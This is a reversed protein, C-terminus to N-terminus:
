MIEKLDIQDTGFAAIVDKDNGGDGWSQTTNWQTYLGCKIQEDTTPCKPQNWSKTLTALVATCSPMSLYKTNTKEYKYIFVYQLYQQIM